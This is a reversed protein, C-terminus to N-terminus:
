GLLYFLSILNSYKKISIFVEICILIINEDSSPEAKINELFAHLVFHPLDWCKSADRLGYKSGICECM